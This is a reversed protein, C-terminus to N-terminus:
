PELKARMRIIADLAEDQTRHYFSTGNFRPERAMGSGGLRYREFIPGAYFECPYTPGQLIHLEEIRGDKTTFREKLLSKWADMLSRTVHPTGFLPSSYTRSFNGPYCTIRPKSTCLGSTM